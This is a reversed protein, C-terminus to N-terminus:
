HINTHLQVELTHVEEKLGTLQDNLAQTEWHPLESKAAYEAIARMEYLKNEMRSLITDRQRNREMEQELFAKQEEQERNM